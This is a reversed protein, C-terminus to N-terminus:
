CFNVAGQLRINYIFTWETQVGVTTSVFTNLANRITLGVTSFKFLVYLRM